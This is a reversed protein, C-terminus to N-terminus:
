VPPEQGSDELFRWHHLDQVGPVHGKPATVLDHSNPETLQLISKGSAELGHIKFTQLKCAPM